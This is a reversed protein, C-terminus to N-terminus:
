GSRREYVIDYYGGGDPHVAITNRAREVFGFRGLFAEIDKLQCGGDYARFDAAETKIVKFRDVISAAGTLVLLESGQTDMVLVDYSAIDLQEDRLLTPLTKSVLTITASEKVDPWIDEHLALPFISSSGGANSTIHFTYEAGDRDTVLSQVARQRPYSALNKELVAFLEPIPEIWLADLKYQAYARREQGTHAGVHIVGKAGRLFGKM